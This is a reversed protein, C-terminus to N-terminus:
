YNKLINLIVDYPADTKIGTASFYSRDFRYGMDNLEVKIKMLSPSSIRLISSIRNIDYFLPPYSDENLVNRIFEGTYEDASINRIDDSCLKDRWMPGYLKEGEGIESRAISDVDFPNVDMFRREGSKKDYILLGMKESLYDPSGPRLRFYIRFYHGQYYSLVPILQKKYIAAIRAIYGLLIRLGIEHGFYERASRAFYRRMCTRPYTGSLTATDTASVACLAHGANQVISDVFRVPSGYPDIDIYDYFDQLILNRVDTSEIRFNNENIGNWLINNRIYEVSAPNIDNFTVHEVDTELVLRIGRIGSASLGDLATKVNYKRALFISIDRNMKMSPNFFATSASSPGKGTENSVRARIKAKGEIIIRDNTM